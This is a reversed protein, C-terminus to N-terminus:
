ASHVTSLAPEGASSKRTQDILRASVAVDFRRPRLVQWVALRDARQGRMLSIARRAVSMAAALMSIPVWVGRGNWGDARMREILARRTPVQPDILNVIRPASAFDEVCQAIVRAALEVDCVAFPLSPRGLCLHWKGFLRRGVLGPLDPASRDILAAPRIICVPIEAAACRNEVVLESETKGWTYAGLDRANEARPTNEDQVEALSAPPSVVSLSSIHVFRNVGAEAAADVVNRAADVSHREHVVFGGSTAAAAHVVASAGAFAGRPVSRSLDARVWEHISPEGPDAGRGVGRVRYGLGALHRAVPRGLFGSAGTLVVLPPDDVQPAATATSARVSLLHGSPREEPASRIAATLEEYLGVVRLLHAPTVPSPKGEVVATYFRRLLPILGPYEGHRLLRQGVGVISRFAATSGAFVPNLIKEIPSTGPNAVGTVCGRIFDASLTGNAGTISLTSSVPRGTLSLHLRGTARGAAVLAELSTPTAVVASIKTSADPEMQELAAVLSYLPHPLVDRLQAIQAARPSDWRLTPSQFLLESDARVYPAVTNARDMLADYVPDGLLQHGACVLRKGSEAVALLAKADSLTEVFPKEVYVHAGSELARRTVDFHSGATTCVHVMNPRVSGLMTDLSTFAVTHMLSAFESAVSADGDFVGVIDLVVGIHQLARAHARAMSGGGVFAVRVPSNPNTM